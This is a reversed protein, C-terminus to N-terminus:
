KKVFQFPGVTILDDTESVLKKSIGIKITSNAYEEFFYCNCFYSDLGSM